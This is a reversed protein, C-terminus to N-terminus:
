QTIHQQALYHETTIALASAHYIALPYQHNTLSRINDNNCQLSLWQGAVSAHVASYSVGACM